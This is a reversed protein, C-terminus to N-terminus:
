KKYSKKHLNGKDWGEMKIFSHLEELVQCVEIWELHVLKTKIQAMVIEMRLTSVILNSSMSRYLHKSNTARKDLTIFVM